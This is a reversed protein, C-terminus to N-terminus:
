KKVRKRTAARHGSITDGITSEGDQGTAYTHFATVLATVPSATPDIFEKNSKFVAAKPGGLSWNHPKGNEGVLTFRLRDEAANYSSTTGTHTVANPIALTIQECWGQTIKEILDVLGVIIANKPDVVSKAVYLVVRFTKLLKTRFTMTVQNAATADAM